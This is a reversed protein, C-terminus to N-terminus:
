YIRKTLLEILCPKTVISFFPEYKKKPLSNIERHLVDHEWMTSYLSAEDVKHTMAYQFDLLLHFNKEKNNDRWKEKKNGNINKKGKKREVCSALWWRKEASKRVMTDM